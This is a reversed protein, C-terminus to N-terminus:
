AMMAEFVRAGGALDGSSFFSLESFSTTSPSAGGAVDGALVHANLLTSYAYGTPHLGVAPIRGHCPAGTDPHSIRNRRCHTRSIRNLVASSTTLNLVASCTTLM